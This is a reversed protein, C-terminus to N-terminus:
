IKGHIGDPGHAKNPNICRLMSCISNHDFNIQFDQSFLKRQDVPTNYTSPISFQDSFFKNFLKAQESKNTRHCDKYNVSNPIRHTNTTKKVYSWFKKTIHNSDSEDCFNSNMKQKILKKLERRCASFKMYSEDSRNHKFNKRLREKKRCLEFTESDFWPPQFDAAIKIKPINKNVCDFLLKKFAPWMHNVNGCTHLKQRWNIKSLNENLQTWNAKKFNYIERKTSKERGVKFKLDFTICYHDSKCIDATDSVELNLINCPYKSLVLDLINGKIHTPKSILQSLGLESFMDVFSQEINCTSESSNWDTKNLNLDGVLTINNIGRRKALAQLYTQVYDFNSLGTTGVRYCTCIATKQGNPATLEIGLIEAQCKFNIVKVTAAIDCRAAILVGGGNKRFKMPDINCPPHTNSSRDLRFITYDSPIIEHNCISPKLWTENLIVIDPKSKFVQTQLEAIKTINLQPNDENLCRIPILGQVNQYIIRLNRPPKPGPNILSPNVITILILNLLHLWIVTNLITAFLKNNTKSIFCAFNIYYSKNHMRQKSKIQTAKLLIIYCTLVASILKTFSAISHIIPQPNNSIPFIYLGPPHDHRKHDIDSLTGMGLVAIYVIYILYLIYYFNFNTDNYYHYRYMYKNYGEAFVSHYMNDTGSGASSVKLRANNYLGISLRYDQLCFYLVAPLNATYM